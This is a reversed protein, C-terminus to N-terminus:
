FDLVTKEMRISERGKRQCIVELKLPGFQIQSSPEKTRSIAEAKSYVYRSM